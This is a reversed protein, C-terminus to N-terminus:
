SPPDWSDQIKHIWYHTRQLAWNCLKRYTSLLCSLELNSLKQSFRTKKCKPSLCVFLCVFLCISLVSANLRERQRSRRSLLLYSFFLCSSPYLNLYEHICVTPSGGFFLDGLSAVAFYEKQQLLVICLCEWTVIFTDGSKWFRCRWLAESRKGRDKNDCISLM